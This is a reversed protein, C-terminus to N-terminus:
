RGRKMKVSKPAKGPKGAKIAAERAESLAIAVARKKPVGAKMEKKINKGITDRSYGKKLM